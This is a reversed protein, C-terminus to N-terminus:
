RPGTARQTTESLSVPCHSLQANYRGGSTLTLHGHHLFMLIEDQHLINELFFCFCFLVFKMSHFKSNLLLSNLTKMSKYIKFHLNQISAQEGNVLARSWDEVLVLQTTWLHLRVALSTTGLRSPGSCWMLRCSIILHVM